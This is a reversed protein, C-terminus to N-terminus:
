LLDSCNQYCFVMEGTNFLFYVLNFFVKFPITQLRNFLDTCTGDTCTFQTENCATLTLETKEDGGLGCLRDDLTLVMQNREPIRVFQRVDAPQFNGGEACNPLM